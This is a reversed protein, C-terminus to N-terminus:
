KIYLQIELQKLKRILKYLSLSYNSNIIQRKNGENGEAKRGKNRGEERGEEKRDEERREKM